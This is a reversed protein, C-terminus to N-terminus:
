AQVFDFYMNQEQELKIKSDNYNQAYGLMM